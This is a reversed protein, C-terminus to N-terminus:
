RMKEMLRCWLKVSSSRPLCRTLMSMAFSRFSVMLTKRQKRLGNIIERVVADPTMLKEGDIEKVGGTKQFNTKMGGPCVTMIHIHKDAVEAGWAEGLSLLASNTAAYTAMYPLPQFASSSSILVVRGFHRRKMVNIASQALAIRSLVNISFMKRHAEISIDQISNRMGIGACAFLENICFRSWVPSSLLADVESACALDVVHCTCNAFKDALAALAPGDKDVLLLHERRPALYTVLARGLGSAAGTIVTQGGPSIEPDLRARERHIVEELASNAMYHPAWGLARLPNDSATLAPFLMAKVAFPLWHRFPSLLAPIIHFSIRLKRPECKEFFDAISIAEGACFYTNGVANPHTSVTLIASALDRVHIVSFRGPWAIRAVPSGAIAQRAFFAFHSDFRMNEGVVMTPRIIVYPLGSHRVVSEAQLKSKGYDSTPNALSDENLPSVCSDHKARDIAGITSVFVFRRLKKQSFRRKAVGVIHDTLELNAREYHLGNGFRADGACHIINDVDEFADCLINVDWLDGILTKVGLKVLRSDAHRVLVTVKHGAQILLTCVQFGVFGSAGSVFFTSSSSSM